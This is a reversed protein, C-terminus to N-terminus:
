PTCTGSEGPNEASCSGSQCDSPKGCPEGDNGTSCQSSVFTDLSQNVCQNPPVCDDDVLCATNDEGTSCVGFPIVAGTESDSNMQFVICRSGSLCHGDENCVSGPEACAGRYGDVPDGFLICSAGSGCERDGNCLGLTRVCDQVVIVDDSWEPGFGTDFNQCLRECDIAALCKGSICAQEPLVPFGAGALCECTPAPAPCGECGLRVDFGFESCSEPLRFAASGSSSAPAGGNPGAGGAGSSNSM